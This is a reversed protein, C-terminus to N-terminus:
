PLVEELDEAAYAKGIGPLARLASVNGRRVGAMALAIARGSARRNAWGRAFAQSEPRGAILRAHFRGREDWVKRIATAVDLRGIHDLVEDTVEFNRSVSICQDLGMTEVTLCRAVKGARGRGSHVSYDFLTYDLGRPLADGGIPDWYLERYIQNREAKWAETPRMPATLLQRPLGQRDRFRDYVKQTVGELTRGGPDRSDNSFGGEHKLVHTLAIPFNAFPAAIAPRVIALELVGASAGALFQRRNM